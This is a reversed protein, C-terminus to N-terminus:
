KLYYEYTNRTVRYSPDYGSGYTETMEVVYGGEIIVYSYSSTSYSWGPGGPCGSDYTKQKLLNTSIDGTIRSDFNNVDFSDQRTAYTFVDYCSVYDNGDEVTKILKIL